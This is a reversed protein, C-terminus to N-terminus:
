EILRYHDKLIFSGRQRKIIPQLFLSFKLIASNFLQICPFSKDSFVYLGNLSYFNLGLIESLKLLTSKRYFSIHQGTNFSYYWWDRTPPKDDFYLETSFILTRCQYVEFIKKIFSVPDHIHELVEFATIASLQNSAKDVEFGKAMLNVCYEDDWYFDFGNDRMLRTLLGYGGAYDLFTADVSFYYHLFVSLRLSLKINRNVLGTDSNAIASSYAEDLWFPEETALFSCSCCQYYAIDYKKLIQANFVKKFQGTCIPCRDM